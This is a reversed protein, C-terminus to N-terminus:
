STKNRTKELERDRYLDPAFTQLSRGINEQLELCADHWVIMCIPRHKLSIRLPPISKFHIDLIKQAFNKLLNEAFM